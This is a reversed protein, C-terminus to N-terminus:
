LCATGTRLSRVDALAARVSSSARPTRAGPAPDLGAVEAAAQLCALLLEERARPDHAPAAGLHVGPPASARLRDAASRDSFVPAWRGDPGELVVVGLQGPPGQELFYLTRTLDALM